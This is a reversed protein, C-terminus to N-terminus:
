PLGARLRIQQILKKPDRVIRLFLPRLRITRGDHSHIIVDWETNTLPRSPRVADASRRHVSVIGMYTNDTRKVEVDTIEDWFLESVVGFEVFRIGRKRLELRRGANLVNIVLLVVAFLLLAAGVLLLIWSTTDRSLGFLLIGVGVLATLGSALLTGALSVRFQQLLKGLPDTASDDREDTDRDLPRRRKAM